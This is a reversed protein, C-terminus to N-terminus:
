QYFKKLNSINWPRKLPKDDMGKLNFAGLGAESVIQYPGEWNAGLKGQTPDKRSGLVKRLVLDGPALTRECVGKGYRKKLDGQYSALRIMALDRRKQALDLDRALMLENNDQDYEESRLTPLGVEFPIVAEVGYTLSYPTEGISNRPTTRFTWLITPLEEM